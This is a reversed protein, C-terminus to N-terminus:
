RAHEKTASRIGCGNAPDADYLRSLLVSTFGDYAESTRLWRETETTPEPRADEQAMLAALDIPQPLWSSGDPNPDAAEEPPYGREWGVYPTVIKKLILEWVCGHCLEDDPRVLATLADVVRVAVRLQPEAELVREYTTARTTTSM